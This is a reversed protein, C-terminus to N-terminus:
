VWEIRGPEAGLILDEVTRAGAVHVKILPVDAGVEIGWKPIGLSAAGCRTAMNWVEEAQLVRGRRRATDLAARMEAFMDITGSSAPSDLGLGVTIGADLMERIPAPRCGLAANSRPCHAVTAGSQALAEVEAELLECCHVLQAGRRVLGLRQAARFPTADFRPPESGHLRYLEAIPGEGRLTFAAEDSSEALHLSIPGGLEGFHALTEMDVTYLSHPNLVTTGRFDRRNRDARERVEILKRERDARELFTIVEQFIAGGLGARRMAEGAFPRDSHEMVLAVGTARNEQAALRTGLRVDSASEGKKAETIERLWPWFEAERLKGQLSRYELHSHANVFAPSVVFPEPVGTHPRIERVSGEALEIELGLELRGEVIL